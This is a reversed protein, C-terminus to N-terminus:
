SVQEVLWDWIDDRGSGDVASFTTFLMESMTGESELRDLQKKMKGKSLKDSKTFVLLFPKQGARLWDIMTRDLETPGHRADILQVIARLEQREGLYTEIMKGLRQRLDAGGRVFGYGPLDVLYFANNIHYYNLQQTKGPTSSTRALSRRQVLRNILSSKGVNSRGSFAVEPRGDSPRDATGVAGVIFEASSVRM